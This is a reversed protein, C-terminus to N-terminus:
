AFDSSIQRVPQRESPEFNLIDYDIIRHNHIHEKDTPIHEKDAPINWVAERLKVKWIM